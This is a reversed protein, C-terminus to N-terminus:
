EFGRIKDGCVQLALGVRGVLHGIQRLTPKALYAIESLIEGEVFTLCRVLHPIGHILACGIFSPM